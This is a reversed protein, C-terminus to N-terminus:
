EAISFCAEVAVHPGELWHVRRIQNSSYQLIIFGKKNAITDLQIKGQLEGKWMVNKMASVIKVDEYTEKNDKISSQCNVLFLLICLKLVINFTKM